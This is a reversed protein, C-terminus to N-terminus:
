FNEMPTGPTGCCIVGVGFVVLLRARVEADGVDPDLQVAGLRHYRHVIRDVAHRPAKLMDDRRDEVLTRHRDLLTGYMDVAQDLTDRWVQHLFCM